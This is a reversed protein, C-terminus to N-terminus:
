SKVNITICHYILTNDTLIPGSKQNISQTRINIQHRFHGSGRHNFQFGPYDVLTHQIFAMHGAATLLM